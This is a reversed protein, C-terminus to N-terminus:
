LACARVWYVTELETEGVSLYDKVGDKYNYMEIVSNFSIPQGDCNAFYLYFLGPSISYAQQFM